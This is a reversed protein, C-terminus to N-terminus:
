CCIRKDIMTIHPIRHMTHAAQRPKPTVATSGRPRRDSYRIKGSPPWCTQSNLSVVFHGLGVAMAARACSFPDVSATALMGDISEETVASLQQSPASSSHGRRM